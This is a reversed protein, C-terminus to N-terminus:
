PTEKFADPHRMVIDLDLLALMESRDVERGTMRSWTEIGEGTLVFGNITPTRFRALEDYWEFLYEVEEPLPPGDLVSAPKAGRRVLQELGVRAPFGKDDPARMRSEHAAFLM